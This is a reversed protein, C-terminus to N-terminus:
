LYFSSLIFLFSRQLSRSGIYFLLYNFQPNLQFQFFLYIFCLYYLLCFTFIFCSFSLLFQFISFGSFLKFVQSPRLLNFVWVRTGRFVLMQYLLSILYQLFSVLQPSFVSSQNNVYFSFFFISYPTTIIFSTVHRSSHSASLM